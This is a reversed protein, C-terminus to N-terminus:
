LEFVLSRDAKRQQLRAAIREAAAVGRSHAEECISFGSVDAHAFQLMGDGQAFWHRGKATLFGPRPKAMAHGYRVCDIREVADILDPYAPALDALALRAWHERGRELLQQRLQATPAGALAHYWTWVTPAQAASLTQHSADVFGLSRSGYIVNDWARPAGPAESPSRAIHLQAMVWPAYDITRAYHRAPDPLGEIVRLGIFLPAAWVVAKTHICRPVGSATDEVEVEFGQKARVIRRVAARTQLREGVVRALGATLWANGGPATLVVDDVGVEAEGDRAAFYHIGAWASVEAMGAGYDDRCAYDAYWLVPAADFGQQALWSAFSIRDLALLDPAQLSQAMPLSFAKAGARMAKYDAMVAFFRRMQAREAHSLGADPVVGDHWHGFRFLREQPAACLLTEAYRPREVYPDGTIAGLEGLLRRLSVSERTPLPLYHAGLPFESFASRGAQANGGAASGLECVLFDDIGLSSLWWAASLGGVGAGVILVDTDGSAGAVRGPAWEDRFRHGISPNAGLWDGEPLALNQRRGCALLPALAM